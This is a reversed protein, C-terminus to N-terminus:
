PSLYSSNVLLHLLTPRPYDQQWPCSKKARNGVLFNGSLLRLLITLLLIASLTLTKDDKRTITEKTGTIPMYRGNM